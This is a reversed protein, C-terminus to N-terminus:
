VGWSLRKKKVIGNGELLAKMDSLRNDTKDQPLAILIPQANKGYQSLAIKDQTEEFTM